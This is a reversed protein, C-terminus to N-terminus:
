DTNEQGQDGAYGMEHLRHINALVGKNGPSIADADLFALLASEYDKELLADLGREFANQFQLREVAVDPKAIEAEARGAEDERRAAEMLLAEWPEEINREDPHGQFARCSVQADMFRVLRYFSDTGVGERDAASWVNGAVVTISGVAAGQRMVEILVSHGGIGALQIYDALRFPAEGFRTGGNGVHKLVIRRLEDLSVPKEFVEVNAHMPIQPQFAKLFATIFVVPIQVRRKGLEGLLEIGSRDPLDLDSLILQPAAADIKKLAESLTGADSIEIDGLKSLGRVMTARLMAEDEIILIRAM